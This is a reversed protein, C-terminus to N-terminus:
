ARIETRLRKLGDIRVATTLASDYAKPDSNQLKLAIDVRQNIGAEDDLGLRDGVSFADIQSTNFNNRVFSKTSALWLETRLKPHKGNMWQKYYIDGRRMLTDLRDRLDISRTFRRPTNVAWLVIVIGAITFLLNGSGSIIFDLISRFFPAIATMKGKAFEIRHWWDFAKILYPFAAIIWGIIARFSLIRRM